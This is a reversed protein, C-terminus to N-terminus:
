KPFSTDIPRKGAGAAAAAGPPPAPRKGGPPRGKTVPTTPAAVATPVPVPVPDITGSPLPASPVPTVSDMPVPVGVLATAESAPASKPAAHPGRMMFLLVTALTTVSLGLVSVSAITKWSPGAVQVAPPTVVSPAGTNDIVAFNGTVITPLMPPVQPELNPRVAAPQMQLRVRNAMQARAGGFLRSTLNGIDTSRVPQGSMAIYSELADRMERATPYRDDRERALARMAIAELVPHVDPEVVSLPPFDMTLLRDLIEGSSAGTLLRRRAVLEWLLVGVSFIDARQDVENAVAQEPAMYALKGKVDGTRTHVENMTAKAIGFDVIKIQGEYTVFVNHPSVDRHVIRLPTGDYDVFEHAYALGGLLDAILRALHAHSLVEGHGKMAEVVRHLPQGELYEMALFFGGDDVGVDYTQVINPHNLRMALRAEDMFMAAYEHSSAQPRKLVVLKKSDFSGKSLALFVDAMGGSGLRDLLEYRGRNDRPMLADAQTM